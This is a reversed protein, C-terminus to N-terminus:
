LTGGILRLANERCIKAYTDASIKGSTLGEELFAVVKEYIDYQELNNPSHLDTAYFIRDAFKRFFGYTYEPDALIAKGGSLSSFECYLNPKEEMMQQVQRIDEWFKPSHGIVKLGPMDRLIKQLRPFGPDDVVGYDHGMNGFHFLVPMNTKECCRLLNVMREDDLYVNATVEGMGVAGRSRYYELYRIFDTDPGNGGQRPDLNCFWARYVEPHGDVLQRAERQSMRDGTGEPASGPPLLIGYEIGLRDYMKRLEQPLPYTTGNVRLLDPEPIGHVHIDIRKGTEM